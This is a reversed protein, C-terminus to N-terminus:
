LNLKEKWLIWTPKEAHIEPASDNSEKPKMADVVIIKNDPQSLNLKELASKEVFESSKAYEISNKLDENRKQLNSAELTAEDMRKISNKSDILARAGNVILVILVFTIVMPWFNEIKPM